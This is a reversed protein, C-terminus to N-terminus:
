EVQAAGLFLPAPNPCSTCQLSIIWLGSDDFGPFATAGTLQSLDAETVNSVPMTWIAEAILEIDLFQTELTALTEDAYHAIMLQNINGVELIDGQGDATLGSWDVMWPGEAPVPVPTMEELEVTYDLTGCPNPLVVDVNTEGETPVIFTLSRIGVGIEDGTQVFAMYTGGGVVIFEPVDVPTGFYTFTSVMADTLGTNDLDVYNTLDSQLLTDNNIKDIVEEVSLNQFRTLASKTITTPNLDHCQIDQTVGSWDYQLDTQPAVPIEGISIAGDFTYNNPDELFINPELKDDDGPCGALFGILPATMLAARGAQGARGTVSRMWSRCM